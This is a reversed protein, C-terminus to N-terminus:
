FFFFFLALTLFPVEFILPPVGSVWDWSKVELGTLVIPDDLSGPDEVILPEKSCDQGLFGDECECIGDASCVGHDSCNNPCKPTSASACSSLSTEEAISGSVVFAFKQPGAPLFAPSVLTFHTRDVTTLCNLLASNGSPVNTGRIRVLM